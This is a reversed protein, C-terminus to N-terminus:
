VCPCCFYSHVVIFIILLHIFDPTAYFWRWTVCVSVVRVGTLQTPSSICCTKWLTTSTSTLHTWSHSPQLLSLVSPAPFSVLLVLSSLAPSLLSRSVLLSPSLLCSSLRFHTCVLSPIHLACSVEALIGDVWWEAASDCGEGGQTGGTSFNFTSSATDQTIGSFMWSYWHGLRGTPPSSVPLLSHHCSLPLFLLTLSLLPRM